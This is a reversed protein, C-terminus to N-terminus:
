LLSRETRSSPIFINRSKKAREESTNRAPMSKVRSEWPNGRKASIDGTLNKSPVCHCGVLEGGSKPMRGRRSAEM